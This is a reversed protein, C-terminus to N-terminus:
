VQIRLIEYSIQRCTERAITDSSDYENAFEFAFGSQRRPAAFTSHPSIRQRCQLRRQCVVFLAGQSTPRGTVGLCDLRRTDIGKSLKEPALIGQFAGIRLDLKEREKVKNEEVIKTIGCLESAM